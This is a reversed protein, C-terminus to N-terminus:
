RCGQYTDMCFGANFSDGAGTTDKVIAHIAPVTWQRGGQKAISGKRGRKIVVTPIIEALRDLARLVDYEGTLSKAECENPAFIDIKQLADQIGPTELTLNTHQCDMFYTFKNRGPHQNVVQIQDWDSIGPSLYCRFDYQSLEVLDPQIYEEDEYSVFGRDFEFSFSAAVVRKPYNYYRCLSTNIGAKKAEDMVFRSFIDNGFDCLWATNMGLRTLIQVIYYTGGPVMDFGSAYIDAGTRPLEPLGTFVLDCFYTGPVLVDYQNDHTM